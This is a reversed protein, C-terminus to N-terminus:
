FKLFYACPRLFMHEPPLALLFLFGCILHFATASSLFPSFRPAGSVCSCPLLHIHQGRSTQIRPKPSSGWVRLTSIPVAPPVAASFARIGRVGQSLSALPSASTQSLREGGVGGEEKGPRISTQYCTPILTSIPYQHTQPSVIRFREQM